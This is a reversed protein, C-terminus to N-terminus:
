IESRIKERSEAALQSIKEPTLNGIKSKRFISAWLVDRFRGIGGSGLYGKKKFENKGIFKNKILLNAKTSIDKFWNTLIGLAKESILKAGENNLKWIMAPVLSLVSVLIRGQYAVNQPDLELVNSEFRGSSRLWAEMAQSLFETQMELSTIDNDELIELSDEIAGNLTSLTIVDKVGYRIGPIQIMGVLPGTELMLRRGIDQAREKYDLPDREGRATPFLDAVLSRDVKKQYFNVDIFIQAQRTPPGDSKDLDIFIESPIEWDAEPSKERMICVAFYAGNIRHQGDIVSFNLKKDDEDFVLRAAGGSVESNPLSISEIKAGNVHILVNSFTPFESRHFNVVKTIKPPWERGPENKKSYYFEKFYANIKDPADVIEDQILYAAIQAVRKWDLSRQISKVKLPNRHPSHPKGPWWEMLKSVKMACLCHSKGKLKEPTFPNEPVIVSLRHISDKKPAM